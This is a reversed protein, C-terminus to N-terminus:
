EDMHFTWVNKWSIREENCIGALMPYQAKPGIPIIWRTPQGQANHAKIEDAMQRAVFRYLQEKTEFITLPHRAVRALQEAPMALMAATVEGAFAPYSFERDTMAVM